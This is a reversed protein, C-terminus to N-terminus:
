CASVRDTSSRVASPHPRMSANTAARVCPQSVKCHNAHIVQRTRRKPKVDASSVPVTSSVMVVFFGVSYYGTTDILFFFTIALGNLDVLQFRTALLVQSDAVCLCALPEMHSTHKAFAASSWLLSRRKLCMFEKGRMIQGIRLVAYMENRCKPDAVPILLLRQHLRRGGVRM